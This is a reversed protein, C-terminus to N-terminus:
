LRSHKKTERQVHPTVLTGEGLSRPQEGPPLTGTAKRALMLMGAASGAGLLTLIALNGIANWVSWVRAGNAAAIFLFYLFGGGAGLATVYRLSLRDFTRGRAAIALVGSFGVGVIFAVVSMKAVMRLDDVSAQGMLLAVLGLLSGVVGVGVAFTLGTGIMGRIVRLWRPMVVELDIRSQAAFYAPHGALTLPGGDEGGPTM